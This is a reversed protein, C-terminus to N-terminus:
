ITHTGEVNRLERDNTRKKMWMMAEELKTLAMANERCSYPSEQFSQLRKMVIAILNEDMAGNVGAELIPGNQFDVSGLITPKIDERDIVSAKDVILFHHPANNEFTEEHFISTYKHISLSDYLEIMKIKPAQTSENNSMQLDGKNKIFM